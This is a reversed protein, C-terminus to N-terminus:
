EVFVKYGVGNNSIVYVGSQLRQKPTLELVEDNIHRSVFDINRGSQDTLKIVAKATAEIHLTGDKSPNPYPSDTGSVRVSVARYITEHGDADVQRLRYYSRGKLPSEDTLTYNSTENTSGASQVKAIQEFTSMDKSREIGYFLSNQEQATQWDLKVTNQSTSTATFSTLTVPLVGTGGGECIAGAFSYGNSWGTCPPNAGDNTSNTSLISEGSVRANPTVYTVIWQTNDWFIEVKSGGSSENVPMEYWNKDNKTGLSIIEGAKIDPAGPPTWVTVTADICDGTLYGHGWGKCPPKATNLGNFLSISNTVAGGNPNRGKIGLVWGVDNWWITLQSDGYICVNKNVLFGGDSGTPYSGYYAPRGSSPQDVWGGKSYHYSGNVSVPSNSIPTCSYPGDTRYYYSYSEHMTISQAASVYSQLLYVVFLVSCCRFNKMTLIQYFFHFLIKRFANAPKGFFVRFVVCILANAVFMAAQSNVEVLGQM